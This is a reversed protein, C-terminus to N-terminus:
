GAVQWGPAAVPRSPLPQLPVETGIARRYCAFLERTVQRWTYRTRVQRRAARGYAHRLEPRGALRALAAALAMPNDPPVRCGTVGDVVLSGLSGVACGVVPIGCAMAEIPAMASRASRPTTVFVDAAHYLYSLAERGCRESLHVRNAVGCDAALERLRQAEPTNGSGGVVYLTADVAHHERLRAMARILNDTGQRPTLRGIQLLTYREADWGLLHRAHARTMPPLDQPDFGCPVVDVRDPDLELRACLQRRDSESLAVVRTAQKLMETEAAIRQQQAFQLPEGSRQRLRHAGRYTVLLPVGHAHAADCAVLGSAVCAAHVVDYRREGLERQLFAEFARTAAERELPELRRPAGAPVHIVHLNPFWEISPPLHPADARTYVDVHHGSESLRRALQALYLARSGGRASTTSTLPSVQESVLAIRLM